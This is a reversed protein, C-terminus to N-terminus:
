ESGKCKALIASAEKVDVLGRDRGWTNYLYTSIEAIEIDTLSPIGYMPKNFEKGNVYIEGSKGYRILCLVDEFNKDM